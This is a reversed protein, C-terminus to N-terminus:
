DDGIAENITSQDDGAQKIASGALGRAALWEERTGTRAAM